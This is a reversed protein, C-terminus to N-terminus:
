FSTFDEAMPITQRPDAKTKMVVAPAHGNGNKNLTKAVPRKAPANATLPRKKPTASVPSQSVSSGGVLELLQAVSGKMTEAQASLEESSAASEEASAATSQTVKDMQGIATNIQTIGQNQEQSASSVEAVLEDVQRAKAVIENLTESVTRSIDVGQASKSIAGEIKSATEKAAQASRQALNRVEDAVVAFGMGAEGARAAEVAANLALINTQFAIEDITKIIKAIDDSSVKIAEMAASMTHMDSAGKDAAQRAQKALDNAKQANEANRKTMSSMEELSSSTEELSAAQESAGESLSQSTSSLQGAASAVQSSGDDLATAVVSLVKRTGRTIFFALGGGVIVALSLCVLISIQSTQVAQQIDRSTTDSDARGYDTFSGLLVVYRDTAPDMEARATKYALENNTSERSLALVKKRAEMCAARLPKTKELLERGKDDPILKGLDEYGKTNDEVERALETEIRAMDEKDSSGIHRYLYRDYDLTNKRIREVEGVIPISVKAIRDSHNRIAILRLYAFIGLFLAIVIVSAFGSTIRKGITWKKM